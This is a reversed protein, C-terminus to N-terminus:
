KKSVPPKAATAKALAEEIAALQQRSYIDFSGKSRFSNLTKLDPTGDYKQTNHYYGTSILFYSNTVKDKGPPIFSLALEEDQQLECYNSDDEKLTEKQDADGTKMAYSANLYTIRTEENVSFDMGAFDLDWFQFATELKIRVASSNIKSLDIEMVMDRSATNGTHAFYDVPEWKGNNEIFVMLPLAQDKQWQEMEKPDAKDKQDRWAEYKNGFMEAFRHYIYGSWLSNGGNVVLKGRMADGPKKFDLIISSFGNENASNDFSFSQKDKAVLTKQINSSKDITATFPLQLEKYTFIRGHRDALVEVGERHHVMMLQLRNIYQKENKVNAIKLKFENGTQLSPLPLYDTREMSAYISGSYVGSVFEYNKGNDVYVQPCNCSILFAIFSIIGVVLLAGGIVGVTSLVHNTNTTKPDFEYVDVREIRSVPVSFHAATSDISGPYYMHVEFLTFRKDKSKVINPKDTKPHLYQAHYDPLSDLDAEINDDKIKLDNMAMTKNEAHLIFYKDESQLRRITAADIGKLTGSRFFHNYCGTLVLAFLGLVLLTRGTKKKFFFLAPFLIIIKHENLTNIIPKM